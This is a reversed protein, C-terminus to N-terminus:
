SIYLKKPTSNMSIFIYVFSWEEIVGAISRVVSTVCDQIDVRYSQQLVSNSDSCVKPVLTASVRSMNM